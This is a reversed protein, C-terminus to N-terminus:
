QKVEILARLADGDLTYAASALNRCWQAWALDTEFQTICSKRIAELALANLKASHESIVEETISDVPFDTDSV